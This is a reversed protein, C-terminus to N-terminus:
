EDNINYLKDVEFLLGDLLMRLDVNNGLRKLYKNFINMLEINCDIKARNFAEQLLGKVFDNAKVLDMERLLPYLKLYFIEYYDKKFLSELYPDDEFEKAEKQRFNFEISRSKITELLENSNLATIIITLNNNREELYKLLMNHVKSSANKFNHLILVKLSSNSYALKELIQKIQEQKIKEKQGDVLFLNSLNHNEYKNVIRDISIKQDHSLIKFAVEKAHDLLKALSEGTFLLNQNKKGDSILKNIIETQIM